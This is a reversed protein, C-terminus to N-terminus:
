VGIARGGPGVRRAMDVVDGGLGCGVDLVRHGAELRLGEVLIPKCRRVGAIANAEDLFRIFFDLDGRTHADTTFRIVDSPDAM